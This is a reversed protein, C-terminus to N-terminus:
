KSELLAVTIIGQIKELIRRFHKTRDREVLCHLILTAEGSNVNQMQLSEVVIKRASLLQTIRELTELPFEIRIIFACNKKFCASALSQM